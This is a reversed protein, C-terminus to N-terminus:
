VLDYQRLGSSYASIYMLKKIFCGSKVFNLIMALIYVWNIRTKPMFDNNLNPTKFRLYTDDLIDLQDDEILAIEFAVM